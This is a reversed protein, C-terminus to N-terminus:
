AVQHCPAWRRTFLGMSIPPRSCGRTGGEPQGDIQLPISARATPDRDIMSYDHSGVPHMSMKGAINQPPILCCICLLINAISSARNSQRAALSRQQDARSSAQSPRVALAGDVNREEARRLEGEQSLGFLWSMTRLVLLLALVHSLEADAAGLVKQTASRKSGHRCLRQRAGFSTQALPIKLISIVYVLSKNLRGAEGFRRGQGRQQKKNDTGDAWGGDVMDICSWYHLM